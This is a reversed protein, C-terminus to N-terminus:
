YYKYLEVNEHYFLQLFSHLNIKLHLQLLYEYLIINYKNLSSGEKRENMFSINQFLCQGFNRWQIVFIDDYRPVM